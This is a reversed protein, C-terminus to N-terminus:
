FFSKLILAAVGGLLLGAITPIGLPLLLVELLVVRVAVALDVRLFHPRNHRDLGGASFTLGFLLVM